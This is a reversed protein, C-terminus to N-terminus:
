TRISIEALSLVIFVHSQPLHRLLRRSETLGVKKVLSM